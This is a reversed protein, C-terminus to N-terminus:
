RVKLKNISKMLTQQRKQVFLIVAVDKRNKILKINLDIDFFACVLNTKKRLCRKLEIISFAEEKALVSWGLMLPKLNTILPRSLSLCRAEKIQICSPVREILEKLGPKCNQLRCTL